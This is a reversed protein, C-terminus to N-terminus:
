QSNAVCVFIWGYGGVVFCLLTEVAERWGQRRQFEGASGCDRRGFRVGRFIFLFKRNNEWWSVRLVRYLGRLLVPRVVELYELPSLALSSSVQMGNGAVLPLLARQKLFM